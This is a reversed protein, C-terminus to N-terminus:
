LSDLVNISFVVAFGFERNGGVDKAAENCQRLGGVVKTEGDEGGVVCGKCSKEVCSFESNTGGVNLGGNDESPAHDGKERGDRLRGVGM